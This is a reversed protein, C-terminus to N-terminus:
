APTSVKIVGLKELHKLQVTWNALIHASLSDHIHDTVGNGQVSQCAFIGKPTDELIITIRM